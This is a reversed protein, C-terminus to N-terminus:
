SSSYSSFPSLYFSILLRFTNGSRIVTGASPIGRLNITIFWRPPLSSSTASTSAKEFTIPFNVLHLHYLPEVLHIFFPEVYSHSTNPIGPKTKTSHSPLSGVSELLLTNQIYNILLSRIQLHFDLRIKNWFKEIIWQSNLLNEVTFICGNRIAFM